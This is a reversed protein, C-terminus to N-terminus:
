CSPLFKCTAHELFQWVPLARVCLGREGEGGPHVLRRLLVAENRPHRPLHRARVAGLVHVDLQQVRLLLLRLHPPVLLLLVQALVVRVEVPREERDWSLAFEPPNALPQLIRPVVIRQELYVKGVHDTIQTILSGNSWQDREVTSVSWRKETFM